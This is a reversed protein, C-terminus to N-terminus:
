GLYSLALEELAEADTSTGDAKAVALAAEVVHVANGVLKFTKTTAPVADDGPGGTMVAAGLQQVNVEEARAAWQEVNGKTLVPVLEKVKSWGLHSLRSWAIGKASLTRYISVHYHAARVGVNTEGAVWRNFSGHGGYWKGDQIAALARGLEFTDTTTVDGTTVKTAQACTLPTSQKTGKAM